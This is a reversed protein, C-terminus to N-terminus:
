EATSGCGRPAPIPLTAVVAIGAFGDGDVDNFQGGFITSVTQGAPAVTDEAVAALRHRRRTDARRKGCHHDPHCDGVPIRLATM